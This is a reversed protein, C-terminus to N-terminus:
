PQADEPPRQAERYERGLRMAEEFTPDDAFAGFVYDTWSVGEPVVEQNKKMQSVAAELRAVREELNTTSM